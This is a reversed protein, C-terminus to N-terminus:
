SNRTHFNQILHTNLLRERVVPFYELGEVFLNGPQYDLLVGIAANSLTRRLKAVVECQSAKSEVSKQIILLILIM